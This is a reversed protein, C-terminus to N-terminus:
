IGSASFAPILIIVMVVMLMMVMPLLLKTAAEESRKKCLRLYDQWARDTEERMRILLTGSGKQLNQILLASLQIYERLGVRQGWHEYALPEPVGNQLERCVYELEQLCSNGKGQCIRQLSGRITLGAGLYLLLKHVLEPYAHLIEQQRKQYREKLDREALGYVVIAAALALFIVGKWSDDKVVEYELVDGEWTQPLQWQPQTRTERESDSLYQQLRHSFREGEIGPCLLIEVEKEWVWAEYWLEAKLCVRVPEEIIGLLAGEQSLFGGQSYWNVEFPYGEYTDSLVLDSQVQELSLNEGLILQPIELWLQEALQEAEQYSYERDGLTVPVQEVWDQQYRVSLILERDGEQYDGRTIAQQEMQIDRSQEQLFMGAGLLMGCFVLLLVWSLREVRFMRLAEKEDEEPYMFRLLVRLNGKRGVGVGLRDAVRVFVGALRLFPIRYFPIGKMEERSGKM